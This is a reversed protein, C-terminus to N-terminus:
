GCHVSKLYYDIIRQAERIGSSRAADITGFGRLSTADGAFLLGPSKEGLPAALRQVDRASSNTSFYPRGGLYCASTSWNSRLLEQPYPVLHSSVCRRLLGTIQELLEEDPLKEIEEYYGGGVHVELVHQSSPVQSIEVVQQTWNREPQQEVSPNLLTGLPRLSGKLWRGIPKKYSLYIKLPNGFGLNRIALMKDLPLTPRFLVGAFSKLVGLPLTCIIHDANYLSGDLCGVSKMPAPTWQIQGVPKGTQLQAKDMNQILDDVVNDLGTPVYLPRQEQQVPCKTIHEINVYELCCGLISGFEKFLSQFIERAALQDKPHQFSVGIIRDSETRFYNMVNDLSHLDGGTKVRESVKFGRCLQRFLTDILEVMAPNIRSGDQLYTARDPQKIQKGLGETNRLLEYMSDQSGDIKVWKAGLECYTDGFRQTNIRGGYRDTAELIVTRRFGHSLLHQAASLGALGAGVVVIQTNQRAAELDPSRQKDGINDAQLVRANYLSRRSALKFCQM